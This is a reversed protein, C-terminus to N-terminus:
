SHASRSRNDISKKENKSIKHQTAGEENFDQTHQRLRSRRVKRRLSLYSLHDEQKNTRDEKGIRKMGM